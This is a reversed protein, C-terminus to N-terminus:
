EFLGELDEEPMEHGEHVDAAPIPETKKPERMKQIAERLRSESDFLFQASTVVMEDEMVGQTIEIFGDKDQVGTKVQRPEFKGEGLAVFVTQKEGSHIVAESPVALAGKVVQGHVRVNVYMDPKLELGPNPFELRAKVTRTKPEVYPYIYSIKAKLSKGGVFPLLVEAEQGVKIWPLEYEYIDAHVWVSSIDGIQFLEQGAKIFQGPMAMKMTVVGQYPAYLTLTKHVQGTKELQRIQRDSIDWYRLRQRSAELLRDGGAAIDKFSSNKLADRNRLALLYEQQASVLKPSYLELLPQGKKVMQGTQDVYLKEIWGDVKANLSTVKPENYGITGVTRILRHLDRREVPATRVGMNQVTVPDIAIIAGSAAEDEYVPVLDMGMPSKGPEDRIYTPDMPAVWYKIKREGKRKDGRSTEAAAAPDATGSKMPTLAMGCIPCSGPEDVIIMPHMGCTYQQEGAQDHAADEASSGTGSLAYWIMGGALPLLLLIIILLRKGSLKM